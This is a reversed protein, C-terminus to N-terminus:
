KGGQGRRCAPHNVDLWDRLLGLDLRYRALELDGAMLVPVLEDYREELLPDADIDLVQLDFAYDADLTRLAAEMDQCLHCYSRSYLTLPLPAMGARGTGGQSAHM